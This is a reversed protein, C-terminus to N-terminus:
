MRGWPTVLAADQQGLSRATTALQNLRQVLPVGVQTHGWLSISDYTRPAWAEEREPTVVIPDWGLEWEFGSPTICYFSFERDNSHQGVSWQTRFGHDLVREYASLMDDLSEVQTNLHQISTRIPNGPIGKLNAIAM